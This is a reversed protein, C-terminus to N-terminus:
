GEPPSLGSSPAEGRALSKAERMVIPLTGRDRYFWSAALLLYAVGFGYRVAIGVDEGFPLPSLLQTSFLGALLGAELFSISLSAFVAVAFASQAATLFVEEVQRTDMPLPSLTTGSVSYALPLSGILLTWQNVKSAILMGMAALARGRWALLAAVIFEPAESALPALWQM